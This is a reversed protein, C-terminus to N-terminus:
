ASVRPRRFRMLESELMSAPVGAREPQEGAYKREVGPCFLPAGFQTPRQGEFRKATAVSLERARKFAAKESAWIERISQEHLNGASWRIHLCPYVNGFPDVLIDGGGIGCHYPEEEQGPAADPMAAEEAPECEAAPEPAGRAKGVEALREWQEATPQISLPERDGNDRPSVPGLWRLRVGLRDALAYMGEIEHTNWATLTSVLGARLGIVRMEAIHEVLRAFSGPVRTQRDHTEPTAGHLSMEGFGAMQQQAANALVGLLRKLECGMSACGREVRPM